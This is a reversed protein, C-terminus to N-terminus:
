WSREFSSPDEKIADKVVRTIEREFDAGSYVPGNFTVPVVTQYTVQTPTGLNGLTVSDASSSGFTDRNKPDRPEEGQGPGSGGSGGSGSGGGGKTTDRVYAALEDLAAKFGDFSGEVLAFAKDLDVPLGLFWDKFPQLEELVKEVASKASAALGALAQTSVTELKALETQWWRYAQESPDLAYLQNLLDMNKATLAQIDDKNLGLKAANAIQYLNENYAAELLRSKKNPDAEREVATKLRLDAFQAHESKIADTIEQTYQALAKLMGEVGEGMARFAAVKDPGTLTVMQRAIDFLGKATVRLDTVFQTEGPRALTGESTFTTSGGLVDAGDIATQINAARQFAAVGNALDTWFQIATKPDMLKAQALFQRFQDRGLGNAAFADELAGELQAAITRPLTQDLWEAFHKSFNASARDQFRGGILEIAPVLSDPFTLLIKVYSNRISDFQAQVDSIMKQQEAPQLNTPQYMYAKGQANIGPIGFKYESQRAQEGLVGGVAGLVAGIVAGILIGTPGGAAGYQAGAGAGAALGGLTSSTRGGEVRGASYGGMVIQAGALAGGLVKGGTTHASAEALTDFAGAAGAVHYKGIADQTIAQGGMAAAARTLYEVLKDAGATILSNFTGGAIEGIRKGGTRAADGLADSLSSGMAAGFQSVNGMWHAEMASLLEVGRKSMEEKNQDLLQLEAQRAEEDWKDFLKKMSMVADNQANLITDNTLAVTQATVYAFETLLETMTLGRMRSITVIQTLRDAWIANVKKEIEGTEEADTILQDYKRHMDELQQLAREREQALKKAAEIEANTAHTKRDPDADPETPGHHPTPLLGAFTSLQDQNYAEPNALEKLQDLFRQWPDVDAATVRHVPGIFDSNQTRSYGVPKQKAAERDMKETNVQITGNILMIDDDAATGSPMQDFAGAIIGIATGAISAAAGIGRLATGFAVIPNVLRWLSTEAKGSYKELDILSDTIPLMAPLLQETLLNAVGSTLTKMRTMNDNFAEAKEATEGAVVQGFKEAEQSLKKFGDGALDKLLPLLQNASRGFLEQARTGRTAPDQIAALGTAIQLFLDKPSKHKLDEMSVGVDGFSKRLQVNGGLAEDAGRAVNKFALNIAGLDTDALKAAYGLRSLDEVAVGTKISMKQLGDAAELSHHVFGVITGLTIAPLLYSGLQKLMKVAGELGLAAKGGAEGLGNIKPKAQESSQGAKGAAEAIKELADVIKGFEGVDQAKGKITVGQVIDAM